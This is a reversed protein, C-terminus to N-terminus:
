VKRAPRVKAKYFSHQVLLHMPCVSLKMVTIHKEQGTSQLKNHKKVSSAFLEKSRMLSKRSDKTEYMRAYHSILYAQAQVASFGAWSTLDSELPLAAGSQEATCGGFHSYVIAKPM